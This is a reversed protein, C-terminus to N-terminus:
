LEELAVDFARLRREAYEIHSFGGEGDEPPVRAPLACLGWLGWVAHALPATQVVEAALSEACTTVSERRATPGLAVTAYARLLGSQEDGTPWRAHEYRGDIAGGAWHSLHTALDFGRFNLGGYEYDILQVGGGPARDWHVNTNSLDNHCFCHPLSREELWSQYQSLRNSIGDLDIAAARELLCALQMSTATDAVEAVTSELAARNRRAGNLWTQATSWGWLDSEREVAEGSEFTHLAALARGVPEHIRAEKCEAATCPGGEIWGEIRGGPMTAILPPALNADSLRAFLKNERERDFALMENQGFERVLFADEHSPRTLKYLANTNGVKLREVVVNDCATPGKPLLPACKAAITALSGSAAGSAAASAVIAFMTYKVRAGPVREHQGCVGTRPLPYRYKQISLLTYCTFTFVLPHSTM